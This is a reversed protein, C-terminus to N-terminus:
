SCLLVAANLTAFAIVLRCKGPLELAHALTVAVFFTAIRVAM